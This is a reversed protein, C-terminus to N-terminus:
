LKIQVGTQRWKDLLLRFEKVLENLQRTADVLNNYLQPDNVLKGLTGQGADIATVMRNISMLLASIQEADTILRDMLRAIQQDTKDLTGSMQTAASRIAQMAEDASASAQAMNHLASKINQQNEPDGIVQRFEVLAQNLQAVAYGLGGPQSAQTSPQTEGPQPPAMTPQRLEQVLADINKAVNAFNELAPALKEMPDGGRVQAQVVASGDKPLYEVRAPRTQENMPAQPVLEIFSGGILQQSIKASVNDPINVDSNIKATMVIGQTPDGGFFKIEVIKGVRVGSMNLYDGVNVGGTSPSKIYVKYGPQLFGPLGVFLLIMAGLILLASFVTLGVAINQKRKNM